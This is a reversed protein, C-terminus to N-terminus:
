KKSGKCKICAAAEPVIELREKDIEQDGCELCKGYTGNEIRKLAEKIQKLDERQKKQEALNEQFDEVELVNEDESTGYDPFKGSAKIEKELRSKKDLLKQKQKQVFEKSIM